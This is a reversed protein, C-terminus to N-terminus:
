LNSRKFNFSIVLFINSKVKGTVVAEVAKVRDTLSLM